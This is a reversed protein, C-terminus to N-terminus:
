NGRSRLNMGLDGDRSEPFEGLVSTRKVVRKRSNDTAVAHLSSRSATWPRFPDSRGQEQLHHPLSSIRARPPNRARRRSRATYASRKSDTELAGSTSCSSTPSDAFELSSAPASAESRHSKRWTRDSLQRCSSKHDRRGATDTSVDPLGYEASAQGDPIDARQPVSSGATTAREAKRMQQHSRQKSGCPLAGRRKGCVYDVAVSKYLSAGETRPRGERKDRAPPQGCAM